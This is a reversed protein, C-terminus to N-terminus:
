VTATQVAACISSTPAGAVMLVPVRVQEGTARVKRPAKHTQNDQKNSQETGMQFAPKPGDTKAHNLQLDSSARMPESAMAQM